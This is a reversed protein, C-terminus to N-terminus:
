SRKIGLDDQAASLIWSRFSDNATKLGEYIDESQKFLAQNGIHNDPLQETNPVSAKRAIDSARIQREGENLKKNFALYREEIEKSKLVDAIFLCSSWCKKLELRASPLEEMLNHMSVIPNPSEARQFARDVEATKELVVKWEAKKQDLVWREHDKESTARFSWETLEKTKRFSWLAILVGATISALSIITQIITPLLWKLTPEPVAALCQIQVPAQQAQDVFFAMMAAAHLAM